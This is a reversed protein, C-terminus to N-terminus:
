MIKVKKTKLIKDAYNVLDNSIDVLDREDETAKCLVILREIYAEIESYSPSGTYNETYYEELADKNKMAAM